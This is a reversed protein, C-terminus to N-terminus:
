LAISVVHNATFPRKIILVQNKIQPQAHARPISLSNHIQMHIKQIDSRQGEIRNRIEKPIFKELEEEVLGIVTTEICRDIELQVQDLDHVLITSVDLLCRKSEKTLHKLM